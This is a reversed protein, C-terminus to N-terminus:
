LHSVKMDSKVSIRGKEAVANCYERYMKVNLEREYNMTHLADSYDLETHELIEALESLRGSLYEVQESCFFRLSSNERILSDIQLQM